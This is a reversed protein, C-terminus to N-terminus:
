HPKLSTKANKPKLLHATFCYKYRVRHMRSYKASLKIRLVEHSIAFYGSVSRDWIRRTRGKSSHRSNPIKHLKDPVQLHNRNTELVKSSPRLATLQRHFDAAEITSGAPKKSGWVFAKRISEVNNESFARLNSEINISIKLLDNNGPLGPDQKM